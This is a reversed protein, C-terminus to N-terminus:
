HETVYGQTELTQWLNDISTKWDYDNIMGSVMRPFMSMDLKIKSEILIKIDEPVSQLFNEGVGFCIEYTAFYDIYQQELAEIQQKRERLVQVRQRITLQGFNKNSNSSVM